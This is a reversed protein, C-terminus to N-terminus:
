EYGRLACTNLRLKSPFGSSHSSTLRCHTATICSRTNRSPPGPFPPSVLVVDAVGGVAEGRVDDGIM